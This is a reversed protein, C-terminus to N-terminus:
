IQASSDLDQLSTDAALGFRRGSAMEVKVDQILIVMDQSEAEM